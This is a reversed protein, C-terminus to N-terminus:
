IVIKEVLVTMEAGWSPELIFLLLEGSDVRHVLTNVTAPDSLQDGDCNNSIWSVRDVLETKTLKLNFGQVLLSSVVNQLGFDVVRFAVLGRLSIVVFQGDAKEFGLELRNVDAIHSILRLEADHFTSLREVNEMTM